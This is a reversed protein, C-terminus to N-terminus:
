RLSPTGTLSTPRPSPGSSRAGKSGAAKTSARIEQGHFPRWQCLGRDSLGLGFLDKVTPVGTDDHPQAVRHAAVRTVPCRGNVCQQRMQLRDPEGIGRGDQADVALAALDQREDDALDPVEVRTAQGVPEPGDVGTHRDSLPEAPEVICL